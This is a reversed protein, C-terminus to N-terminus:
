SPKRVLEPVTLGDSLCNADGFVMVLQLINPRNTFIRAALMSQQLDPPNALRVLEPASDTGCGKVTRDLQIKPSPKETM